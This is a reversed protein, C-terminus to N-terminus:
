GVPTSNPEVTLEAKAEIHEPHSISWTLFYIYISGVSIDLYPSTYKQLTDPSSIEATGLQEKRQESVSAIGEDWTGQGTNWGLGSGHRFPIRGSSDSLSPPAHKLFKWVYRNGSDFANIDIIFLWRDRVIFIQWQLVVLNLVLLNWPMWTLYMLRNWKSPYELFLGKGCFRGESKM